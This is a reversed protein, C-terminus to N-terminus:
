ESQASGRLTEPGGGLDPRAAESGSLARGGGRPGGGAGAGPVERDGVQWRRVGPIAWLRTFVRPRDTYVGLAGGDHWELRGLKGPIIPWGEAELTVRYRFPGALSQLAQRPTPAAKPDSRRSPNSPASPTTLPPATPQPYTAGGAPM